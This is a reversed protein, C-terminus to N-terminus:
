WSWQLCFLLWHIHTFSHKYNKWEDNWKIRDAWQASIHKHSSTDIYSLDLVRALKNRIPFQKFNDTVNTKSVNQHMRHACVNAKLPLINMRNMWMSASLLLLLLFLFSFFGWGVMQWPNCAFYFIMHAKIYAKIEILRVYISDMRCCFSFWLKKFNRALISCWFQFIANWISRFVLKANLKSVLHSCEGWKITKEDMEIYAYRFSDFRENLNNSFYHYSNFSSVIKIM